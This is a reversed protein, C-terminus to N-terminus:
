NRRTAAGYLPFGDLRALFLAVLSRAIDTGGALAVAWVLGLLEDGNSGGLEKLDEGALGIALMCALALLCFVCHLLFDFRPKAAGRFGSVSAARWQRLSWAPRELLWPWTLLVVAFVYPDGFPQLGKWLTLAPLLMMFVLLAIAALRAQTRYEESTFARMSDFVLAAYDFRYRNFGAVFSLM